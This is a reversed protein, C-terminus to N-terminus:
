RLEQPTVATVMDKDGLRLMETATCGDPAPIARWGQQHITHWIRWGPLQASLRLLWTSENM